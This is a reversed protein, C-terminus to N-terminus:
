TKAPRRYREGARRASLDNAITYGAVFRLAKDAPVDRAQRGVVAALEVEWDMQKSYGSIKVAAGPDAIARPAKLFHWARM